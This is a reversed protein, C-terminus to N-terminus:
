LHERSKSAQFQPHGVYIGTVPDKTSVWGVSDKNCSDMIKESAVLKQIEDFMPLKVFTMDQNEAKAGGAELAVINKVKNNGASLM